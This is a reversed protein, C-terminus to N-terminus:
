AGGDILKRKNYSTSNPLAQLWTSRQPGKITVGVTYMPAVSSSTALSASDSPCASTNVTITSTFNNCNGMFDSGVSTVTSPIVIPSNIGKSGSLFSSAITTLSTATTMDVFSLNDASYLFSSPTSPANTGFDFGAVANRPVRLPAGGLFPIDWWWDNTYGMSYFGNSTLVVQSIDGNVDVTYYDNFTFVPGGWPDDITVEIGWIDMLDQTSYYDNFSFEEGTDENYYSINFDWQEQDPDYNGGLYTYKKWDQPLPDWGAIGVLSSEIQDIDFSVVTCAYADKPMFDEVWPLLYLRGWETPEKTQGGGPIAAIEAALGALGTDGVTGGKATVADKAAQLNTQLATIESAITM